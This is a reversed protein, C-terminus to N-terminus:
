PCVVPLPKGIDTPSKWPVSTEHAASFAIHKFIDSIQVRPDLLLAFEIASRGEDRLQSGILSEGLREIHQALHFVPLNHALTWAAEQEISQRAIAWEPGKMAAYMRNALSAAVCEAHEPDGACPKSQERPKKAYSVLRQWGDEPFPPIKEENLNLSCDIWAVAERPDVSKLSQSLTLAAKRRAEVPTAPSAAIDRMERVSAAKDYYALRGLDTLRTHFDGPQGRGYAVLLGLAPKIDANTKHQWKVSRDAITRVILWCERSREEPDAEEEPADPCNGVYNKLADADGNSHEIVATLGRAYSRLADGRKQIVDQMERRADAYRGLHLLLEAYGEKWEIAEATATGTRSRESYMNEFVSLLRPDDHPHPLGQAATMLIEEIPLVSEPRMVLADFARRATEKSRNGAYIEQLMARSRERREELPATVTVALAEAATDMLFQEIQRTEAEGIKEPTEQAQLAGLPILSLLLVLSVHM